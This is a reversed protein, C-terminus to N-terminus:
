CALSLISVVVVECLVAEAGAEAGADCMIVCVCMDKECLFAWLFKLKKRGGLLDDYINILFFFIIM